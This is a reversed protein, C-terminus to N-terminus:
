RPAFRARIGIPASVTYGALHRDEESEGGWYGYEHHIRAFDQCTQQVPCAVCVRRAHAERRARAQPREAKPPFFLSTRGKCAALDKWSAAEPMDVGIDELAAMVQGKWAETLERVWQVSILM